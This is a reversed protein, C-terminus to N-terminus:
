FLLKLYLIPTHKQLTVVFTPPWRFNYNKKIKNVYKRSRAAHRVNFGATVPKVSFLKIDNPLHSNIVNKIKKFDINKLRDNSKM